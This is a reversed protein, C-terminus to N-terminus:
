CQSKFQSATCQQVIPSRWLVNTHWAWKQLMVFLFCTQKEEGTATCGGIGIFSQLHLGDIGNKCICGEQNRGTTKAKNHNNSIFGKCWIANYKLCNHLDYQSM